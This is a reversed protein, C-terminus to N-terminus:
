QKPQEETEQAPEPNPDLIKYEIYDPSAYIIEFNVNNIQIFNEGLPVFQRQDYESNKGDSVIFSMEGGQIGGYIIEFNLETDGADEEVKKYLEVQLDRPKVVAVDKPVYFFGNEILGLTDLFYGKYDVAAIYASDPFSILMYYQGNVKIEGLPTFIQGKKIKVENLVNYIAGDQLAKYQEGGTKTTLMYTSSDYMRQGLRATVAVNHEYEHAEIEEKKEGSGKNILRQSYFTIPYKKYSRLKNLWYGDSDASFWYNDGYPNGRSFTEGWAGYSPSSLGIMLLMTLPIFIKKM